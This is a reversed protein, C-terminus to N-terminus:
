DKVIKHTRQWALITDHIRQVIIQMGQGQYLGDVIIWACRAKMSEFSEKKANM